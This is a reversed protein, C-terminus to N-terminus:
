RALQRQAARPLRIQVAGRAPGSVRSAGAADIAVGARTGQAPRHPGEMERREAALHVLV